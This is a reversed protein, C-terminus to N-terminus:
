VHKTDRRAVEDAWAPPITKFAFPIEIEKWKGTGKGLTCLDAYSTGGRKGIWSTRPDSLFVLRLDADPHQQRLLLFKERDAADWEGKFDILMMTGDKKPLYFDPLYLKSKAPVTYRMKSRDDEYTFALGLHWLQDHFRMEALSRFGRLAAQRMPTLTSLIEIKEQKSLGRFEAPTKPLTSNKFTRRYNTAM